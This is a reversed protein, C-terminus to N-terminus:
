MGAYRGRREIAKNRLEQSELYDLLDKRLRMIAHYEGRILSDIAVESAILGKMQAMLPEIKAQKQKYPLVGM